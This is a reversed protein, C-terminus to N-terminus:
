KIAFPGSKPLCDLYQRVTIKKSKVVTTVQAYIDSGDELCGGMRFETENEFELMVVFIIPGRYNEPKFNKPFSILPLSAAVITSTQSNDIEIDLLYLAGDIGKRYLRGHSFWFNKSIALVEEKKQSIEIGPLPIWRFGHSDNKLIPTRIDRPTFNSIELIRSGNGVVETMDEALLPSYFTSSILVLLGALKERVDNM